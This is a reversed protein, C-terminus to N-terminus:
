AFALRSRGGLVPPTRDGSCSSEPSHEARQQPARASADGSGGNHSMSWGFNATSTSGGSPAVSGPRSRYGARQAAPPAMRAKARASQTAAMYGPIAPPRVPYLDRTPSKRAAEMEVTNESVGDTAAATVYSTEAPGHQNAQKPQVGTHCYELWHWGGSREYDRDESEHLQRQHQLGYAYTPASEGWAAAVADHRRPMVDDAQVADWTGQLSHSANSHRRQPAQVQVAPAEHEDIEDDMGVRDHGFSLRGGHQQQRPALEVLGGPRRHADHRAAARKAVHPHSTLRRARVRAQARVLAQMCRMTLHVQRRVQHGRVLAQLRVLGRLARRARRALYGRYFAQIRVAAREERSGARGRAAATRAVWSAATVAVMSGLRGRRGGAVEEQEGRERWVVAGGGTGENTVDPSTEAAPFHDVSVIEAAECGGAATGEAEGGRQQDIWTDILAAYSVMFVTGFFLSGVRVCTPSHVKKAHRQDKNSPKFVKRVTALWGAGAVAGGPKKGM